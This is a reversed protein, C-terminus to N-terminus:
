PAFILGLASTSSDFFKVNPDSQVTLENVLILALAPGSLTPDRHPKPVPHKKDLPSPSNTM